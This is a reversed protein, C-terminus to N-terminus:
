QMEFSRGFLDSFTTVGNPKWVFFCMFWQFSVHTASFSGDMISFTDLVSFPSKGSNINTKLLPTDKPFILWATVLM